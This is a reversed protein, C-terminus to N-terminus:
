RVYFEELKKERLAKNLANLKEAIKKREEKDSSAKFAETLETQKKVLEGSAILWVCEDFYRKDANEYEGFDIGLCDKLLPIEEVDFYDYYSSVPIGKLAYEIIEAQRPLLKKYDINKNVFPKKFILSGVIFRIARINGNERATLVSEAM